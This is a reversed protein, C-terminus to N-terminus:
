AARPLTPKQYYADKVAKIIRKSEGSYELPNALTRLQAEPIRSTVEINSLLVDIFPIHENWAQTALSGVLDHAVSRGLPNSTMRGDTLYALIQPSTVAGYSREVREKAQDEHLGLWYVTSALRRVCHDFFKFGDEFNIRASASASLNRAYPMRCNSLSTSMNGRLYNVLSIVQEEATPNGNKADKHPMASSGKKKSPNANVFVNSDDGRGTAIYEVINGLTEGLRSLVYQVDAEFELGPVQAPAIMKGIGLTKCYEAELVLGDIGLTKASHHNGTADGWKGKLSNDYVFKLFDLGSQLMEAYHVFPRGAVTPMADYLHTTDMHPFDQWSEGKEILIDRLNEISGAVVELSQKFQIARASQTTDASTRIKNVHFRVGDSSLVEELGTNVAIVDHGTQEELERIHDASIYKLNAKQVIEAADSPPVVDPHLRSLTNSAEAQVKLQMEFTRDSGWIQVMDYTGYREAALSSPALRTGKPKLLLPKTSVESFIM